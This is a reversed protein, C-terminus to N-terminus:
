SPLGQEDYGVLEEPPRPDLVPLGACRRGIELLDESLPRVSARGRERLLRERLAQTIAETLTEGTRDALERALAEAEVNKISLAV